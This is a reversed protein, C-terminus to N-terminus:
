LMREGTQNSRASRGWGIGAQRALRGRNFWRSHSEALPSWPQWAADVAIAISKVM